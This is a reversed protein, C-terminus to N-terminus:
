QWTDPDKKMRNPAMTTGEPLVVIQDVPVGLQKAMAQRFEEELQDGTMVPSEEPAEHSYFREGWKMNWEVILGPVIFGLSCMVVLGDVFMFLGGIAHYLLHRISYPGHIFSYIM